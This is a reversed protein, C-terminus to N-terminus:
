STARHKRVVAVDAAQHDVHAHPVSSRLLAAMCTMRLEHAGPMNLPIALPAFYREAILRAEALEANYAASHGSAARIQTLLALGEGILAQDPCARAMIV